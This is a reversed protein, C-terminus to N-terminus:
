GSGSQLSAWVNVDQFKGEVMCSEPSKPLVNRCKLSDRPGKTAYLDGVQKRGTAVDTDFMSRMFVRYVTEPQYASIAHGADFM